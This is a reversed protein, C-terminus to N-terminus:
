PVDAWVLERVKGAEAREFDYSKDFGYVRRGVSFVDTIDGAEAKQLFESPTIQKM